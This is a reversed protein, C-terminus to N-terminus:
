FFLFYHVYHWLEDFFGFSFDSLANQMFWINVEVVLILFDFFFLM